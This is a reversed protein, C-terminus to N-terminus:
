LLSDGRTPKGLSHCQDLIFGDEIFFEIRFQHSEIIGGGVGKERQKERTEGNSGGGERGMQHDLIRGGGGGLHNSTQLLLHLVKFILQAHGSSLLPCIFECIFLFGLLNALGSKWVCYRCVHTCTHYYM